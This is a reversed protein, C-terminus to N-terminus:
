ETEEKLTHYLSKHLQTELEVAYAQIASNLSEALVVVDELDLTGVTETHGYDGRKIKGTRPSVEFTTRSLRVMLKGTDGEWSTASWFTRTM